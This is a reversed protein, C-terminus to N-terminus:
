REQPTEVLAVLAAVVREMRMFRSGKVLITTSPGDITRAASLLAELSPHHDDPTGFARNAASAMQGITLLRTVGRQRARRGVEAHYDQSRSGVEDMDGFIFVTTGGAAVLVEIAALASDPNANYSDDIVVGGAASPKVQLRGKAASFSSLGAAISPAPVGLVHAVAAAALANRANHVGPVRLTTDVESGGLRITLKTTTGEIRAVGSVRAPTDLGFDVVKRTGCARRWESAYADDSNIIAVGDQPLAAIAASHEAAVADVTHMYAQHERQANTILGIGPRLLRAAEATEGAHNMGVEVVAVEHQSRLRLVTLPIGIENNLNGDTALVRDVGMASRLVAATMEKTTTKGNSGVIAVVPITFRQRWWAAIAGLARHTDPVRVFSAGRWRGDDAASAVMAGAAGSSLAAHVYDHGDFREGTLAVFLAGNVNIRSDTVVFGVPRDPGSLVGGVAAAIESLSVNMSM